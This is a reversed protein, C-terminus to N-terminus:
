SRTSFPPPPATMNPTHACLVKFLSGMHEIDAIRQAGRLLRAAQHDDASRLLTALRERLGLALLFAGQELPVPTRLGAKRLAEALAAFDVHTTLDSEGPRHFIDVQRHRHLAQLTDGPGPSTHGYDIILVAGMGAQKLLRALDHAMRAREESLEIISGPPLEKAWAPVLRAPLPEGRPALALSGTEDITVLRERWGQPTREYQRVPLADFFENAIILLPAGNLARPLTEHWTVPCPANALQRRQAARLTPSFELLHVQLARAFEPQSAAARLLDSMLLGRGPGLELLHLRAPRGMQQWVAMAWVGLLEGFMQSAEPATIFDGAEGLPQRTTYYGHQPHGLCLNMYEAVSIPGHEAIRQRILRQLPTASAHRADPM